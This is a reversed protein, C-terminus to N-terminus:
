FRVLSSVPIIPIRCKSLEREMGAIFQTAMITDQHGWDKAKRALLVLDPKVKEVVDAINLPTVHEKLDIKEIIGERLAFPEDRYDAVIIELEPNKRLQEITRGGLKGAGIVLVRM